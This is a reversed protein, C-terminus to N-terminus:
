LIWDFKDALTKKLNARCRHDWVYISNESSAGLEKAIEKTSCGMLKMRILNRCRKALKSIAELIQNRKQDIILKFEPSTGDDKFYRWQEDPLMETKQRADKRIMNIIKFKVVKFSIRLLETTDSIDGYKEYLLLVTEQALDEAAERGVRSTAYSTIRARLISFTEESIQM